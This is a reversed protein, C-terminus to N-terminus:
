WQWDQDSCGKGKTDTGQIRESRKADVHETTRHHANRCARVDKRQIRMSRGYMGRKGAESVLSADGSANAALQDNVLKEAPSLEGTVPTPCEPLPPIPQLPTNLSLTEFQVPVSALPPPHVLPPLQAPAPALPPMESISTSAQEEM